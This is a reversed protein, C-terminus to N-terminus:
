SSAIGDATDMKVRYYQTVNPLSMINTIGQPNYWVAEPYSGFYEWKMYHLRGQM